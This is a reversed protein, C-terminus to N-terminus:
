AGHLPLYQGGLVATVIFFGVYVVVLSILPWFWARRKQILRVVMFGVPLGFGFLCIAYGVLVMTSLFSPSCHTGSAAVRTCNAALGVHPDLYVFFQVYISFTFGLAILALFVGVVIGSIRHTRSREPATTM